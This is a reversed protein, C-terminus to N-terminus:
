RPAREFPRPTRLSVVACPTRAGSLAAAGGCGVCACTEIRVDDKGKELQPHHTRPVARRGGGVWPLGSALLM